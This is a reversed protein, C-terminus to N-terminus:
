LSGHSGSVGFSGNSLPYVPAQLLRPDPQSSRDGADPQAPRRNIRIEAEVTATGDIAVIDLLEHRAFGVRNGAPRELDLMVDIRAPEASHADAAGVDQM